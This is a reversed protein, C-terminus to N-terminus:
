PREGEDHGPKVRGDRAQVLKRVICDWEAVMGHPHGPQCRMCYTVLQARGM